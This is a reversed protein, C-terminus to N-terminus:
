SPWFGWIRLVTRFPGRDQSIAFLMLLFVSTGLLGLVLGALAALSCKRSLAMFSLILAIPSALTCAMAFLYVVSLGTSMEFPNWVVFALVVVTLIWGVVAPLSLLLGAMGLTQGSDGRTKVQHERM